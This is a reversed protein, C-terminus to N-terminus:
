SPRDTRLWIEGTGAGGTRIKVAGGRCSHTEGGRTSAPPDCDGFRERIASVDDTASVGVDGIRIDGGAHTLSVEAAEAVGQADYYV